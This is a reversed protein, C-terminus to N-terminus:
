AMFIAPWFKLKTSVSLEDMVTGSQKTFRPELIPVPLPSALNYMPGLSTMYGNKAILPEM